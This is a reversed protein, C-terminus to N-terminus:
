QPVSYVEVKGTNISSIFVRGSGSVAVGLPNRMPNALDYLTTVFQGAGDFVEVVNQYSDTIYVRGAGDVAIGVIGLLTRGPQRVLSRAAFALARM